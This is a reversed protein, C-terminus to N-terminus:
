KRDSLATKVSTYQAEPVVGSIESQLSPQLTVGSVEARAQIPAATCRVQWLYRALPELQTSDLTRLRRKGFRSDLVALSQFLPNSTKLAAEPTLEHVYAWCAAHVDDRSLEGYSVLAYHPQHTAKAPIGRDTTEFGGYRNFYAFTCFNAIVVGDLTLWAHGYQSDGYRTNHIAVRKNLAFRAELLTKLKSWRM